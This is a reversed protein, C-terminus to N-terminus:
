FNVVILYQIIVVWVRLFLPDLIHKLYANQKVLSDETILVLTFFM